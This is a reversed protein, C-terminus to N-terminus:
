DSSWVSICDTFWKGIVSSSMSFEEQCCQWLHLHGLAAIFETIGLNQKLKIVVWGDVFMVM